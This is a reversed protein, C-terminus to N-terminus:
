SYNSVMWFGQLNQELFAMCTPWHIFIHNQTEEAVKCLSCRTPVLGLIVNVKPPYRKYQLESLFLKIKKPYNDNRIGKALYPELLNLGYRGSSISPSKDQQVLFGLGHIMGMFSNDACPCTQSRGMGYRKTKWTELSNSTGFATQLIGFRKFQLRKVFLYDISLLSHRPPLLTQYGHVPGYSPTPEM